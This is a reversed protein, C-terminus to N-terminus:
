GSWPVAEATVGLRSLAVALPETVCVQEVFVIGKSGGTGGEDQEQWAPQSFYPLYPQM